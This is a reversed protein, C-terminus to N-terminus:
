LLTKLPHHSKCWHSPTYFTTRVTCGETGVKYRIQPVFSLFPSLKQHKHIDKFKGSLLRELHSPLEQSTFEEKATNDQLM